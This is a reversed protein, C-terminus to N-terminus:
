NRPCPQVSAPMYQNTIPKAAAAFDSSLMTLSAISAGLLRGTDELATASLQQRFSESMAEALEEPDVRQAIEEPFKNLREQLALHYAANTQSLERM